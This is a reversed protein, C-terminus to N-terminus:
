DWDLERDINRDPHPGVYFLLLRFKRDRSLLQFYIRAAAQPTTANGESLHVNSEIPSGIQKKARMLRLITTIGGTQALAIGKKEFFDELTGKIEGSKKCIEELAECCRALFRWRIQHVQLCRDLAGGMIKYDPYRQASREFRLLPTLEGTWTLERCIASYLEDNFTGEPVGGESIQPWHVGDPSPEVVKAGGERLIKLTENIMEGVPLYPLVIVKLEGWNGVNDAFAELDVCVQSEFPVFCLLGKKDRAILSLGITAHNRQAEAILRQQISTPLGIVFPAM